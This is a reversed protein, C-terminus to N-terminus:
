EYRRLSNIVAQAMPPVDEPRIVVGAATITVKGQSVQGTRSQYVSQTIAMVASKVVAVVNWVLVTAGILHTAATSGNDGRAYAACATAGATGVVM